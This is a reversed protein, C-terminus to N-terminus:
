PNANVFNIIETYASAFMDKLSDREKVRLPKTKHGGKVEFPHSAPISNRRDNGARLCTALTMHAKGFAGDKDILRGFTHLKGKPDVVAMVGPLQKKSLYQMFARFVADNFSNQFSLWGSRDPLFRADASLLLELAHQYNDDGLLLKWKRWYVIGFRNRLLEGVQDFTTPKQGPILGLGQFVNRVQPALQDPSIGLGKVSVARQVLHAGLTMGTLPSPDKIM